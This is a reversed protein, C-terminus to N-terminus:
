QNINIMRISSTVLIVFNNCPSVSTYSFELFRVKQLLASNQVTHLLSRSGWLSGSMSDKFM